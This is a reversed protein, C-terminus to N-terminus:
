KFWLVDQVTRVLVNKKKSVVLLHINYSFTLYQNQQELSYYSIDKLQTKRICGPKTIQALINFVHLAIKKVSTYQIQTLRM